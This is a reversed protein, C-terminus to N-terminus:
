FVELIKGLWLGLCLYVFVIFIGLIVPIDNRVQLDLCAKFAEIQEPTIKECIDRM